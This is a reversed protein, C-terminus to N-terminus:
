IHRKSRYKKFTVHPVVGLARCLKVYTDMTFNGGTEINSIVKQAVGSQKMLRLQPMKKEARKNKLAETFLKIAEKTELDEAKKEPDDFVSIM